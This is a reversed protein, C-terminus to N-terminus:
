GAPAPATAPIGRVNVLHALAVLVRGAAGADLVVYDARVEAVKGTVDGVTFQFRFATDRPLQELYASLTGKPSESM